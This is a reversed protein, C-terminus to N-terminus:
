PGSALRPVMYDGLKMMGPDSLIWEELKRRLGEALEPRESYLNRQELPDNSVDFLEWKVGQRTPIYLLKYGDHLIARHKAVLFDDDYREDFYIEHTNPDPRFAGFGDAFKMTRGELVEAEPSIFWLGTEFFVP